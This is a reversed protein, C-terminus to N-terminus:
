IPTLQMSTEFIHAYPVVKMTFSKEFKTEKKLITAACVVTCYTGDSTANNEYADCVALTM